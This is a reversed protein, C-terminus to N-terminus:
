DTGAWYLEMKELAKELARIKGLGKSVRVGDVQYGAPFQVEYATPRDFFRFCMCHNKVEEILGSLRQANQYPNAM